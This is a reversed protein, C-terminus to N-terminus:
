ARATARACWCSTSRATSPRDARGTAAARELGRDAHGDFEVIVDGREIGAKAAPGDPMVKSVLAGKDDALGFEKALEPTIRQIVVGLWGRTM